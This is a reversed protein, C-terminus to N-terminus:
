RVPSPASLSATVGPKGRLWEGALVLFTGVSQRAVAVGTGTGKPGALAENVRYAREAEQLRRVHSAQVGMEYVMLQSSM